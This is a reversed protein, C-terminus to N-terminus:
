MVASKTNRVLDGNVRGQEDSVRKATAGAEGGNVHIDTKQQITVNKNNGGGGTPRLPAGAMALRSNVGAAIMQQSYPNYGNEHGIIAAVLKQLTDSNFLDLAQNAGVGLKKAVAAIYAATNNEGPPAWRGIIQAVTNLGRKAYSLLNGAMASIGQAATQFVAFGGRTPTDGWSRLNGPNNNRIGLPASGGAPPASPGTQGAPAGVGGGARTQGGQGQRQPQDPLSFPNEHGKPQAHGTIDAWIDKAKKWAESWRGTLLNTILVLTDLITKTADRLLILGSYVAAKGFYKWIAEGIDVLNRWLDKLAQAWEATAPNTAFSDIWKSIADGSKIAWATIDGFLTVLQSIYPLLKIAVVQAIVELEAYLDRLTNQFEHAKKAAQDPDMGLKKYLDAYKNGFQQLGQSMAYLTQEDIGLREAWKASLWYPMQKFRAGLDRMVEVMDRMGGDANRTEVGLMRVFSEAAPNTRFLRALGELSGRAGQATGGLKEIALEYSQINSVSAGIRQSAWYLDELGKSMKNVFVTAATAAATAVAAFKFVKGTVGGIAAGFKKLTPEDVKFGLEVLFEKLVESQAM